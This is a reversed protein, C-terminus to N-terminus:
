VEEPAWLVIPGLLILAMLLTGIFTSVSDNALPELSSEVYKEIPDILRESWPFRRLRAMIPISVFAQAKIIVTSVLMYGLPQLLEFFNLGPSPIRFLYILFICMPWFFLVFYLCFHLSAIFIYVSKVAGRCAIRVGYIMTPSLDVRFFPSWFQSTSSEAWGLCLYIIGFVGTIVLDMKNVPASLEKVSLTTKALGAMALLLGVLRYGTIGSIEVASGPTERVSTAPLTIHANQEDQRALNTITSPVDAEEQQPQM